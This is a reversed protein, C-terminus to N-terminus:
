TPRRPISRQYEKVIDHCVTCIPNTADLESKAALLLWCLVILSFTYKM